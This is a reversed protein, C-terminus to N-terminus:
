LLSYITKSLPYFRRSYPNKTPTKKSEDKKNSDRQGGSEPPSETRNTHIPSKANKSNYKNATNLIYTIESKFSQWNEVSADIDGRDKDVAIIPFGDSKMKDRCLGLWASKEFYLSMNEEHIMELVKKNPQRMLFFWNINSRLIPHLIAKAHHITFLVTMPGYHRNKTVLDTMVKSKDNFMTALDSTSDELWIFRRKKSKKAKELIDSLMTLTFKEYITIKSDEKDPLSMLFAYGNKSENLFCPIFLHYEDYTNHKLFYSIMASSFVTKGSHKVGLMCIVIGTSQDKLFRKELDKCDM